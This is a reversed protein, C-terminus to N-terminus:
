RHRRRTRHRPQAADRGGGGPELRALAAPRAGGVLPRAPPAEVEGPDQSRRARMPSAAEFLKRYEPTLAYSAEVSTASPFRPIPTSTTAPHRRPPAPRLARRAPAPPTQEGRGLPRRPPRRVGPRAPELLSRFAEEKGSHPTATVLILHRSATPPSGALAARPTPPPELRRRAGDACTHAEDVIVLEPCARLFEQATAIARSSIPPSSSTLTSRSCRSARSRLRAGAASVTSSLVLEADLHFKDRSSASGSSPWTRRASSPSASPRAATSCSAPSRAGSRHDQRDRRRRCDPSARPRPKLAMLLPVLQYPRPEIAIHASRDSRAPARASASACRTACCEAPATTARSRRSRPAVLDGVRGTRTGAPNRRDRRRDRGPAAPRPPRRPSPCSWGSGAAHMCWHSGVAFTMEEASRLRVSVQDRRCVWDEDYRFPIVTFGADSLAARVAADKEAAHPGDHVPGDIFVAAFESDYVFDPRCHQDAFLVQARSPLQLKKALLFDLFKHELSSACLNRLKRLHEEPSDPSPVGLVKAGTLQLLLDRIAHRDLHRHHRQNTYSMLCDYCAVICDERRHPPRRLDEGTDPDFHCIELAKRAVRALADPETALRRLVGAGGEAAEYFLLRSPSDEDPLLEAALESDELQYGVQIARKLAALLSIAVEPQLKDGPEFLLANRRDEVYPVVRRRRPGVEDPEDEEGPAREWNGRDIDLWFGIQAKIERNRWGLNIRWLTAVPCYDLAGLHDSVSARMRGGEADPFRIGTLLEYGMRLRDEEDSNIRDRRRTAVNQLRFLGVMPGGLPAHCNECLDPGPEEPYSHLYGCSACRKVRTAFAEERDPPLIVRSIKYRSGEHYIFAQPGFESIAIFRPRSLFEETGKRKQRGPIFASLPLRPFSYGPLFGESAFYRYSYFDSQAVAQGETLLRLQAEADRRLAHARDREEATRHPEQIIKSQTRAQGLASRYLSRWRECAEDLRALSQQLVTEPWDASWWGSASLESDISELVRAVHPAARERIKPSALRDAKEQLIQLTPEEGSLDLLDKLTRGLDEGSESLWIAQLHARVLDENALDLRPPAVAGRVMLGPRRFFYQDHSSGTSCYTIVLAPSGSRGARGSRQAYNAPTPPVNRLGVFNLDAIDIGLEMTPSCFLIPLEGTRFEREREERREAPVQATHERAEINQFERPQSRYLGVFFPNPHATESSERPVRIPDQRPAGSGARWILAQALVQYGPDGEDEITQAVIGAIRLADLLERILADVDESRLAVPGLEPFTGTRRLYQGFMGRPSLFLFSRDDGGAGRPRPLAFSFRALREDEDLAWAGKLRQSSRQRLSDSQAPDLYEIKVALERRLYDLLARTVRQRTQPTASALAPHREQWLEEDACAADLDLYDIELLGCQELNPSTIRWGRRLDQFLRYGVVDRLARETELRGSYKISPDAAYMAFDFGLEAVVKAAIEDSRVGPEGAIAVARFLASRLTVIQVFDNLHGSQLSADQRNDTFSLLKALEPNQERARRLLSIALVTTASSRGESSLTSLRGFDASLRGAHSVGCRLCFRFPAETFWARLGSEGVEMGDTALSIAVPLDGRRAKKIRPGSAAEEIWDPPVRELLGAIDDPWPEEASVYLFGAAEEEHESRESLQRARVSPAAQDSKGRFVTYYEQGCERCFALPLLIRKEPGGPALPQAELTLHRRDEPELTAWVTEGKGVFQHLRFAFVPSGTEVHQIQYGALLTKELARLATTEDISTRKALDQALGGEGRLPRPQARIWRGTEAERDLGVANELWSAVPDSVFAAFADPSNIPAVRCREALKALDAPNDLDLPSTTRRLQEGIIDDPVLEAGFLRTAVAAIVAQQSEWTGESALTASTGVFQASAAAFASRARRLLFAVDAGSRGRYTHLEDLVLFRLGNAAKVLERERPRTLILELMVYNTLLIDPPNAIIENRKEDSEQGTYREFRVPGKGGSYGFELFKRLENQQSNALANMPYVVIAQIGKGSGNRLISDVIPIIYTLSKGSGTGTTLVYNRGARAARIAREQHAHLRLPLGTDTATNKRRFIKKCESHLLGEACLDDITKGPEFAPNLQLLAEPWLYGAELAEDVKAEIRPDRIRVFSRVFQEYDEILRDRLDFVNM